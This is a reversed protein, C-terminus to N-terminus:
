KTRYIDGNIELESSWGGNKAGAIAGKSLETAVAGSLAM